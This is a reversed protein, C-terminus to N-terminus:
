ALCHCSLLLATLLLLPLLLPCALAPVPLAPCTGPLQQLQASHLSPLQPQLLPPLLLFPAVQSASCGQHQQQQQQQWGLLLCCQHLHL